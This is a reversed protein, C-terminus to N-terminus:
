LRILKKCLDLFCQLSSRFQNNIYNSVGIEDTSLKNKGLNVGLVGTKTQTGMVRHWAWGLAWLVSNASHSVRVALDDDNDNASSETMELSDPRAGGCEKRYEELYEKVKEVGESNFGFRNIVGKDEVLRFSRPKPNGPQPLPTVSGIEVFSFGLDFLGPIAIGNKDFGAALGIPSRFIIKSTTSENSKNSNGNGESENTGSRRLGIEVKMDVVHGTRDVGADLGKKARPALGRRVM